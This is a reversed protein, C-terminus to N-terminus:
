ITDNACINSGREAAIFPTNHVTKKPSALVQWYVAMRINPVAPTALTLFAKLPIEGRLLYVIGYGGIGYGGIGSDSRM